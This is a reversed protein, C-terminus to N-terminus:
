HLRKAIAPLYRADFWSDLDTTRFFLVSNKGRSQRLHPISGYMIRNGRRKGIATASPPFEDRVNEDVLTRFDPAKDVLHPLGSATVYNAFRKDLHRVAQAKTLNYPLPVLGPLSLFQSSTSATATANNQITTTTM